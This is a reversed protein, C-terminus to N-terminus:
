AESKAEIVYDVGDITIKIERTTTGTATGGAQTLNTDIEFVKASTSWEFHIWTHAQASTGMDIRLMQWASSQTNWQGIFALGLWYGATSNNGFIHLPQWANSTQEIYMGHWFYNWASWTGVARNRIRLGTNNWSGSNEEVDIYMRTTINASNTNFNTWMNILWEVFGTAQTASGYDNISLGDGTTWTLADWYTAGGGWGAEDVWASGDWIFYKVDWAELDTGNVSISNTSTDNNIVSFRTVRDTNTPSQITQANGASTTTIIVGSFSDVIATSVAANTAPDTVSTTKLQAVDTEPMIRMWM